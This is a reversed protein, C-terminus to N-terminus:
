AISMQYMTLISYITALQKGSYRIKIKIYKDRIKAEKRESWTDITDINEETYGEPLKEINTSKIDYQDTSEPLVIPPKEWEKENKENFVISPIQIDWQNEKYQSNGRIRNEKDIPTNKVHISINYQDTSKNHTVETGSLNDYNKGDSTLQKYIEYMYYEPKEKKYYEPFVFSKNQKQLETNSYKDDYEIESGQQKMLERTAEQRYYINKKDKDFSYNDGSITFHFSEPEADNAIMKLNQFIKQVYMYDNVVFEFEFPHTEGYWTTPKVYEDKTNGHKWLHNDHKWFENDDKTKRYEFSYMTSDINAAYSPIWSYFTSFDGTLINYCINWLKNEKKNWLTFMVDSKKANYTTKINSNIINVDYENAKFPINEQLFRSIVHDSIIKLQSGDTMWIKKESADIGFIYYPTLIVSEPWQSGYSENIMTINEPLITKNNIFVDGGTSNAMLTREKIALVGVGHEMICVLNNGFPILKTIEGYQKSYDRFNGLEFVRYGNINLDTNNVNSYLVRNKFENRIYPKDKFGSFNKIGLNTRFGNNSVYSTPIKQGGEASIPELPYFKRGHGFIAVEERNSEDITRISLNNTSKIKITIWSGLKVANIDGKQIKDNGEKDKPAQTSSYNEQWTAPYLIKDNTPSSADQFNRNVRHTFTCLFCDGRFIDVGEEISNLNKKTFEIRNSIPYYASNDNFRILLNPDKEKTSDYNLVTGKAYINFTRSYGREKETIFKNTEDSYQSAVIGLYPSFIGRVFNFDHDNSSTHNNDFSLHRLASHQENIYSTRYAEQSNGAISTFIINDIAVTPLEETVAIIKFKIEKNLYQRNYTYPQSKYKSNQYMDEKYEYVPYYLRENNLSRIPMGQQFPTYKISLEQGTFFQNYDVQNVEFEPCIATLQNGNCYKYRNYWHITKFSELNGKHTTSDSILYNGYYSYSFFMPDKTYLGTAGPLIPLSGDNLFQIQSTYYYKSDDSFAYGSDPNKRDVSNITSKTIEYNTDTFEKTKLLNNLEQDNSILTKFQIKFSSNSSDIGNDLAKDFTDYEELNNILKFKQVFKFNNINKLELLKTYTETTNDNVDIGYEKLKESISAADLINISSKAISNRYIIFQLNNYIDSQKNPIPDNSGLGNIFQIFAEEFSDFNTPWLLAETGPNKTLVFQGKINYGNQITKDDLVKWSIMKEDISCPLINHLRPIYQNTVKREIAFDFDGMVDDADESSLGRTEEGAQAIFSEVFYHPFWMMSPDDKSQYGGKNELYKKFTEGIIPKNKNFSTMKVKICEAEAMTKDGDTYPFSKAWYEIIPLHSEKDWPMTFGQALITKIRKKRVIFFGKIGLKQTLYEQIEQNIKVGLSYIYDNNTHHDWIDNLHIVGRINIDTQEGKSNSIYDGKTNFLIRNKQIPDLILSNTPLQLSRKQIENIKGNSINNEFGGIEGGPLDFVPSNSGDKNIYVIGLRYYEENWYGVNYYINKTNYYEGKFIHKKSDETIGSDESYDKQSIHGIKEKSPFRKVYPVIHLSLDLLDKYYLDPEKINAFFLYNQIQAQTKAYKIVSYQTQIYDLGIQQIDENGTISIINNEPVYVPDMLEFAQPIAEINAESSSRTYYVKIFDYSRDFNNIKLQITKGSNEDEIGSNITYPDADTGKFVSIIGSEAAWDTANKDYDCYKIYFVYNGVKLNGNEVQGEYDIIPFKNIRKILSTDIDFKDQDTEIKYLNANNKMRNPIKATGSSTVSFRTNILRPINKNDNILLNVSGDYSPQVDIDVPHNIDWNFLKTTCDYIIKYKINEDRDTNDQYYFYEQGNVDQKVCNKLPQYSNVMKIEQESGDINDITQVKYEKYNPSPFSGLQCEGEKNISAIYIIGNYETMGIPQFGDPLKINEKNTLEDKIMINGMDNQIVGQNGVTSLYTANLANSLSRTQGAVYENTDCVMGDSFVNQAIKVSM